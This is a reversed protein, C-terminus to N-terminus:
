IMGAEHCMKIEGRTKIDLERNLVKKVNKKAIKCQKKDPPVEISNQWVGGLLGTQTKTPIM